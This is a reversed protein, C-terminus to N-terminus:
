PRKVRFINKLNKICPRLPSHPKLKELPDKSQKVPNTSLLKCKKAAKSNLINSCYAM